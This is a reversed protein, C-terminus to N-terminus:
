VDRRGVSVSFLSTKRALKTGVFLRLLTRTVVIATFMSVGVGIFLTLAFGKVPAGAAVSNGVWYLIGCVIFTTINSDRIATWARSFGAEISAGLTRGTRIEEKMREFILVNADVAMGISLIFGGLGALTLTVPILKFLALVLAGYFVLALSALLGSLRYYAIMFLMVLIIGILGAKISRAIFDAGLIPSVTQDYIPTLPLPIRGANLLSSLETAENLSLGEIQGRDTIKSRVIPAIPEGDDGLLPEGSLFIGLPKGILRETVEGSIQSGERNWEFVLIPRGFDDTTVYTNEKFYASTLEKEQGDIVATAPVWEEKGEENIVLERFELLATQGILKKAKEAESIGPLEVLIRDDGQKQIVPETVGLIDIRREIVAIAGDIAEGEKGPEIASFDAQYVMHIGGQLDLGLRMAERGFLPYILASVASGFLALIIALTLINKRTM